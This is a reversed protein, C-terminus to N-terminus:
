MGSVQTTKLMVSYTFCKGSHRSCYMLIGYINVVNLCYKCPYPSRCYSEMRRSEQSMPFM